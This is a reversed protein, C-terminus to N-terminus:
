KPVSMEEKGWWIIAAKSEGNKILKLDKNPGHDEEALVSMSVMFASILLFVSCLLTVIVNRKLM